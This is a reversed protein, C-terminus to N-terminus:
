QVECGNSGRIVPEVSVVAAESIQWMTSFGGEGQWGMLILGGHKWCEAGSVEFPHTEDGRLVVTWQKPVPLPLHVRSGTM